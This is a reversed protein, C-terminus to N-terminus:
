ECLTLLSELSCFVHGVEKHHTTHQMGLVSGVMWVVLVWHILQLPVHDIVLIHVFDIWSM